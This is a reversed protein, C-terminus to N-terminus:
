SCTQESRSRLWKPLNFILEARHISEHCNAAWQPSHYPSAFTFVLFCVKEQQFLADLLISAMDFRFALQVNVHRFRHLLIEQITDRASSFFPVIQVCYNARKQGILIRSSVFAPNIFFLLECVVSCAFWLISNDDLYKEVSLPQIHRLSHVMVYYYMLPPNSNSLFLQGLSWCDFPLDQLIGSHRKSWFKLCRHLVALRRRQCKQAM